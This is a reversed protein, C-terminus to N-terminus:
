NRTRNDDVIRGASLRVIRDARAAYTPSHTAFVVTAGADNLVELMLMVQNGTDTDLNGTPEDALILKPDHVLARAVAVRQQEGGSLRDPFDAARDDLGVLELVERVLQRRRARRIRQYRLPLEVNERVSLEAILHFSQFIYGVNRKRLEALEDVSRATIEEGEFVYRGSSAGDIMGVINLLTSKGSGSPGTVAILEGRAIDLDIRDLAISRNSSSYRKTVESLRIVRM